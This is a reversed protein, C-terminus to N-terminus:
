PQAPRPCDRREIRVDAQDAGQDKFLGELDLEAARPNLKLRDVEANCVTIEMDVQEAAGVVPNLDIASQQQIVLLTSLVVAIALSVAVLLWLPVKRLLVRRVPSPGSRGPRERAGPAEGEYESM